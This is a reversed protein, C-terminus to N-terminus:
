RNGGGNARALAERLGFDSVHTYLETTSISQHGLLKQVYRIDLGSELWQTACTHRLMHPTIRKSIGAKKALQHLGTRVCPTSIAKGNSSVFLMDCANSLLMRKSIYQEMKQYLPKQLLYALRQRNGKGHILLHDSTLSVDALEIAVLEGVRIGTDLLLHVATKIRVTDFDDSQRLTAIAKRLAKQDGRDLAKPLRGPLRIRENLSDFPNQSIVKEEIAWKMLLKLSAMRRKITSEKLLRQERLYRIYQRLQDKSLSTLQKSGGLFQEADALDSGYAKLSYHSLSVASKCHLLFKERAKTLNM